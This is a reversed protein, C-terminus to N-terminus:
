VAPGMRAVPATGSRLPRSIVDDNGTGGDSVVVAIDNNNIFDDQEGAVAVERFCPCVVIGAMVVVQPHAPVLMKTVIYEKDAMDVGQRVGHFGDQPDVVLGEGLGLLTIGDRIELSDHLTDQFREVGNRQRVWAIRPIRLKRVDEPRAPPIGHIFHLSREGHMDAPVCERDLGLLRGDM